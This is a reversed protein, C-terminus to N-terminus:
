NILGLATQLVARAVGPRDFLVSSYENKLTARYLTTRIFTKFSSKFEVQYFKLLENMM